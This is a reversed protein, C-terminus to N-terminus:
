CEPQDHSVVGVKAYAQNLAVVAGILAPYDTNIVFTPIRRLYPTLRGHKEFRERFGSRAFFDLSRLVIGRGIHAGRRAGLALALNGAITGLIRCFIDLTELAM